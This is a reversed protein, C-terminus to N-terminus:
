YSNLWFLRSLLFLAIRPRGTSNYSVTGGFNMSKHNSNFIFFPYSIDLYFLIFEFIGWCCVFLTAYLYIQISRKLKEPSNNKVAVYYALLCGFLLYAFQTVYQFSFYLPQPKAFYIAVEHANLVNLDGDIVLPMILSGGAVLTSVFLPTILSTLGSEIQISRKLCIFIVHRLLCLSGLFMSPRIGEISFAENSIQFLATGTFPVSFVTLEYLKKPRYIFFIIALPIILYGLFYIEM